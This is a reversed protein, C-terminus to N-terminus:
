GQGKWPAPDKKGTERQRWPVEVLNRLVQESVGTKPCCRKSWQVYSHARSMNVKEERGKEGCCVKDIIIHNILDKPGKTQRM